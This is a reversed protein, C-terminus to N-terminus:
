SSRRCGITAGQATSEVDGFPYTPTPGSGPWRLLVVEERMQERTATALRTRFLDIDVVEYGLGEALEALLTGTRIMVQLYSKQDGVVYALQAGSRLVRRLDALHKAMGGFYLKVAKHYNKEFGSTKGLDLRRTEIEAALRQIEAHGAVWQDDTDGKYVNRSNSRVLKEKLARLDARTNLFGLLVSELRTTRTYDKENPYPPSTIVADITAGTTAARNPDFTGPALIQLLSRADAHIVQSDVPPLTQLYRLDTAMAQVRALWAEVVPADAKAKGIGVEPGFHLNSSDTVIARALALRLHNSYITEGANGATNGTAFHQIAEGLILAKHLPLPSISNKLLLQEAAAPLQRLIASEPASEQAIVQQASQSIAEAQALLEEPNPTWDLKTTGAFWAMPNAEIGVSPIGLKKADVVTTGTGCFPDLLRQQSDLGFREVYTQVLHPPFSLIFRYWDHAARDGARVQNITANLDAPNLTIPPAIAALADGSVGTPLAPIGLDLQSWSEAPSVTGNFDLHVVMVVPRTPGIKDSGCSESFLNQFYSPTM